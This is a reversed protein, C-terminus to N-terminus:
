FSNLFSNVIFEIRFNDKNILLQSSYNGNLFSVFSTKDINFLNVSLIPRNIISLEILKSPIQRLVKNEFNINFDMKSQFKLLEFRPIYNNVIIRGNSNNVNNMILDKQNTFVYFRFDLDLKILFEIFVNPDRGGKFITGAYSFSPIDNKKYQSIHEEIEGFNFGQPIIKIKDHFERYYGQKAGEFPVSVYTCKKFFYKELYKFYFPKRFSDMIDGMYPDGCDAIWKQAIPKKLDWAFAVGWHIPYPVAISILLDFNNALKLARKVQFFLEIDPYEFFLNLARRLINICIQLIRNKSSKTIPKFKRQGLNLWECPYNDFFDQRGEIDNVCITVEHGQRLFEKALETARFSRPSNEPFFAGSVILIRKRQM